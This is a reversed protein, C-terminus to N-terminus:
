ILNADGGKNAETEIISVNNLIYTQKLNNNKSGPVLIKLVFLLVVNILIMLTYKFTKKIVKM